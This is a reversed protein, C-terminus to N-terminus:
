TVASRELEAAHKQIADRVVAVFADEEFHQKALVDAAGGLLLERQIGHSVFASLVVVAARAFHPQLHPEIFLDLGAHDTAPGGLSVDLIVGDYSSRLMWERAEASDRAHDVEFGASVLIEHVIDRWASDDDIVLIRATM